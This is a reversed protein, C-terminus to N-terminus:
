RAPADDGSEGHAVVKAAVVLGIGVTAVLAAAGLLPMLAEPSVFKLFWGLVALGPAAFLTILGAAMLDRDLRERGQELIRRVLDPQIAQGSEIARRLTEHQAERKRITGWIGAVAVIAVFGWFALAALGAGISMSQM